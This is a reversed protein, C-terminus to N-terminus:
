PWYKADVLIGDAMDVKLSRVREFGFAKMFGSTLAGATIRKPAYKASGARGAAVLQEDTFHAHNLLEKQLDERTIECGPPRKTVECNSYYHVGGIGIILPVIRLRARQQPTTTSVAVEQAKRIAALLHNEPKSKQGPTLIPNPSIDSGPPHQQLKETVFEQMADNAFQGKYGAIRHMTEDWFSIQMSGGGIDWVLVDNRGVGLKVITAFFGLRAEDSQDIIRVPIELQERIRAILATYSRLLATCPRGHTSSEWARMSYRQPGHRPASDDLTPRDAVIVDPENTCQDAGMRAPM